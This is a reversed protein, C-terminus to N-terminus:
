RLRIRWDNWVTGRAYSRLEEYQAEGGEASDEHFERAIGEMLAEVTHQKEMLYIFPRNGLVSSKLRCLPCRDFGQHVSLQLM